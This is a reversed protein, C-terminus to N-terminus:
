RFLKRPEPGRLRLRRAGILGLLALAGPAIIMISSPEPVVTQVEFLQYNNPDGLYMSSQGNGLSSAGFAEQGTFGSAFLKLGTGDPNLQYLGDLPGVSGNGGTFQNSFYLDGTIPNIAMSRINANPLVSRLDALQTIAQTTPNISDVLGVSNIVVLNGSKDLALGYEGGSPPVITEVVQGSANLGVIDNNVNTVWLIQRAADFVMGADGSVSNNSYFMSSAGTHLSYEIIGGYSTAFLNGGFAFDLKADTGIVGGVSNNITLVQGSTTIELLQDGPSTGTVTYVDGQGDVALPFSQFGSGRLIPKLGPEYLTLGAQAEDTRIYSLM